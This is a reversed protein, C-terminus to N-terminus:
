GAATLVSSALCGEPSVRLCVGSPGAGGSLVLLGGGRARSVHGAPPWLGPLRDPGVPRAPSDVYMYRESDLSKILLKSRLSGPGVSGSSRGGPSCSYATLKGLAGAQGVSM